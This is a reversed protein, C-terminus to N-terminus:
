TKNRDMGGKGCMGECTEEKCVLENAKEQVNIQERGKSELIAITYGEMFHCLNGKEEEMDDGNLTAIKDLRHQIEEATKRKM